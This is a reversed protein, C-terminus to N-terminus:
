FATPSLWAEREVIWCSVLLTGALIATGRQARSAEAWCRAPGIAFASAGLILLPMIPVRFRTSAFAVIVPAVHALALAALLAALRRERALALGVVGALAVVGYSVAVGLAATWRVGDRDLMPWRFRYAWSGLTGFPKEESEPRQLLRKVPFATPRLLRPVQHAAKEFPWAPLGEVIREIAVARAVREREDITDGFQNYTGFFTEPQSGLYINMWTTRSLLVFGESHRNLAISWPAITLAACAILLLGPRLGAWPRPGAVWVLYLAAVLPAVLGVERTLACLGFLVGAGAVRPLKPPSGGGVLTALGSVMLFVYLTESFVYHSYAVLVPYFATLAAAVLGAREGALRRAVVFMLPITAISLLVNGARAVDISDDVARYLVSYFVIAGPARGAADGLPEGAAIRKPVVHYIVEDNVLETPTIATCAFIRLVGGVLVIWALHRAGRNM